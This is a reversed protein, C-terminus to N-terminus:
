ARHRWADAVCRHGPTLIPMALSGHALQVPIDAKRTKPNYGKPQRDHAEHGLQCEVENPYQTPHGNACSGCTNQPYTQSAAPEAVAVAPQRAAAWRERVTALADPKIEWLGQHGTHPVPEALAVVDALEWQYQGSIKWPSIGDTTVAALRAVAVIGPTFMGEAGGELGRVVRHLQETSLAHHIYDPTLIYTGIYGIDGMAEQKKAGTPVVGGHIALFMGVQGGQKEPRWTRNEVDKGTHAICFAWPHTLTIGRILAAM